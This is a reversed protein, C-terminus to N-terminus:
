SDCHKAILQPPTYLSPSVVGILPSVVRSNFRWTKIYWIGNELVWRINYEGSNLGLGLGFFNGLQILHSTTSAQCKKSDFIPRVRVNLANHQTYGQFPSSVGGSIGLFFQRVSAKSSGQFDITTGNTVAVFSTLKDSFVSLLQDLARNYADIDTARIAVFINFFEHYDFHRQRVTTELDAYSIRDVKKTGKFVVKIDCGNDKKKDEKDKILITKCKCDDQIQIILYHDTIKPPKDIKSKNDSCYAM